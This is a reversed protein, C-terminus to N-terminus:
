PDPSEYERYEKVTSFLPWRWLEVKEKKAYSRAHDLCTDGRKWAHARFDYCLLAAILSPQPPKRYTAAQRVGETIQKKLTLTDTFPSTKNGGTLAKLELVAYNMWTYEDIGVNATIRIDFRGFDTYEEEKVYFDPFVHSLFRGLEDQVAKEPGKGAHISNQQGMTNQM